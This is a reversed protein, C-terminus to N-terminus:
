TARLSHRSATRCQRRSCCSSATAQRQRCCRRSTEDLVVKNVQSLDITQRRLHDLLRGPTGIILQPHRRLKQKQREIDQGGFIVLSSIDAAAALSQAVKAIQIALERTPTIVLAQTVAAQPKIKEIIPLLFALTGTGTHAKVICDSGARVLPMAKEQVPTAEKIGHNRLVDCLSARIGLEQFTTM